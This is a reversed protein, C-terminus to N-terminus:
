AWGYFRHYIINFGLFGVLRLDEESTDKISPRRLPPRKIAHEWFGYNLGQQVRPIDSAKVCMLSM